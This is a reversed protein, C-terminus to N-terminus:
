CSVGPTLAKDASALFIVLGSIVFFVDVGIGGKDALLYELANHAEFDFFLQMFHHGVVMWAALARLAQVSILM